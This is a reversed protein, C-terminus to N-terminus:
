APFKTRPYLATKVVPDPSVSIPDISESMQVSVRANVAVGSAASAPSISQVVPAAAGGGQEGRERVVRDDDVAHLVQGAVGQGGLQARLERRLGPDVERTGVGHRRGRGV